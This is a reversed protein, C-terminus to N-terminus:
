NISKIKEIELIENGSIVDICEHQTQHCNYCLSKLDIGTKEMFLVGFYKNHHAVDAPRSCFECNPTKTLQAHRREQWHQSKRYDEQEMMGACIQGLYNLEDVLAWNHHYIAIQRRKYFYNLHDILKYTHLKRKSDSFSTKNNNM